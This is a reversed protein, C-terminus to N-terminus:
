QERLGRPATANIFRGPQCNFQITEFSRDPHTATVTYLGPSLQTAVLGGSPTTATLELNPYDLPSGPSFYTVTEAPPDFSVVVDAVGLPRAMIIDDFSKSQTALDSVESSFQCKAPDPVVGLADAFGQFLEPVLLQFHVRDLDESGTNFTETYTPVYGEHTLLVTVAADSPVNMEWYGADDTVTSLTAYEDITVTAGVVPTTTGKVYAIGSMKVSTASSNATSDEGECAVLLCLSGILATVLSVDFRM